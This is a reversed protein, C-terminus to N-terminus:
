DLRDLVEEAAERAAAVHEDAEDNGTEGAGALLDAVHGVRDRVVEPGPDGGSALDAAVAAAEGLWASAGPRVPLEATAALHDDMAALRDRVDDPTEETPPVASRLREVARDTDGGPVAGPTPV